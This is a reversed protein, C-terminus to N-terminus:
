GIGTVDIIVGGEISVNIRDTRYDRTICCPHGNMKIVRLTCEHEKAFLYAGAFEMGILYQRIEILDMGSM